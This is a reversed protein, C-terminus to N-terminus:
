LTKTHTPDNKIVVLNDFTKLASNQTVGFRFLQIMEARFKKARERHQKKGQMRSLVDLEDLAREFCHAAVLLEGELLECRGKAASLKATLTRLTDRKPKVKGDTASRSKALVATRLQDVYAFGGHVHENAIKKFSNLSVGSLRADEYKAFASQSKLALAFLSNSSLSGADGNLESLLQVKNLVSSINSQLSTM